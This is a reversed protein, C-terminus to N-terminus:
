DKSRGAFCSIIKNQGSAWVHVLLGIHITIMRQASHEGQVLEGWLDPGYDADTPKDSDGFGLLDVAYVRHQEALYSILSAYHGANGGALVFLKM